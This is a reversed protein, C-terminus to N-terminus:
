IYKENFKQFLLESFLASYNYQLAVMDILSSGGHRCDVAGQVAFMLFVAPACQFIGGGVCQRHIGITHKKFFFGVFGTNGTRSM